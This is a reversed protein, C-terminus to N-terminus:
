PLWRANGQADFPDAGQGGISAIRLFGNRYYVVAERGRPYGLAMWARVEREAITRAEAETAAKHRVGAIVTTYLNGDILPKTKM